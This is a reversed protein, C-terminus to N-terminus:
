HGQIVRNVTETFDGLVDGSYSDWRGEPWIEVVAGTGIVAATSTPDIQAWRRQEQSLTVRGQSDFECPIALSHLSRALARQEPTAALPGPIRDGLRAWEEPPYIVLVTDPGISIHSGKPLEERFRSPIALRGKADVRYRYTGSFM